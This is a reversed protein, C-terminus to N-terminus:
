EDPQDQDEDAPQDVMKQLDEATPKRKPLPASPNQRWGRKGRKDGNSKDTVLKV